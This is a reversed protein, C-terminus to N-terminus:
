DGANKAVEVMKKLMDDRFAHYRHTLPPDFDTVIENQVFAQELIEEGDYNVEARKIQGNAAKIRVFM